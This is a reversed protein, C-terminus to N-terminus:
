AIIEKVKKKKSTSDALDKYVETEAWEHEKM